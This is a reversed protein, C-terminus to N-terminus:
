QFCDFFEKILSDYNKNSYSVKWEAERLFSIFHKSPIHYANKIKTKLSYWLSEIHSTSHLGESFDGSRHNHIENAYVNFNSIFYYGSWGDSVIRNGRDLIYDFINLQIVIEKILHKWDLNM